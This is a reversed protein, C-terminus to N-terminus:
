KMKLYPYYVLFKKPLETMETGVELKVENIQYKKGATRKGGYWIRDNM